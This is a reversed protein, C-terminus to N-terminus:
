NSLNHERSLQDLKNSIAQQLAQIQKQQFELDNKEHETITNGKSSVMELMKISRMNSDLMQNRLDTIEKSKFALKFLTDNHEVLLDKAQKMTAKAESSNPDKGAVQKRLENAKTNYGDISTKLTQFDSKINESNGSTLETKQESTSTAQKDASKNDSCAFLTLSLILICTIKKM